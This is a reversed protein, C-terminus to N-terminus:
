ENSHRSKKQNEQRQEEQKRKLWAEDDEYVVAQEPFAQAIQDEIQFVENLTPYLLFNATFLIFWVGLFPMLIASWPLFLIVVAWYLVQLFACGLTRGFYRIMFLLCNRVSQKWPQEFLVLQPFYLSFFMTFMLISFLYLLITGLSPRQTAWWFLMLMFLYFGLPLCFFIGPLISHKWNQRLARKYNKTVKGTNDRLSRYVADYMCSLAPGAFIGGIVCAPILVLVSTSLIAYLVGAAFPLLGALTFLGAIFFRKFDRDLLERYRALGTQRRGTGNPMRIQFLSM